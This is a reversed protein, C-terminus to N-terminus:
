DGLQYHALDNWTNDSVETDSDWDGGWILEIGMSAGIGVVFGAFYRFRDIDKWDIPYPCVDVALSPEVNHKSNPWRKKSAGTRFAEDQPEKGRHGWIVICDFHQVVEHLVLQIKPHCTALIEGSSRGFRPM